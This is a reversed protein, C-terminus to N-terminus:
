EIQPVEIKVSKGSETTISVQINIQRPDDLSQVLRVEDITEIVEDSNPNDQNIVNYHTLADVISTQISSFKESDLKSGISTNVDTGYDQDESNSGKPTLIIKFVGEALKTTGELEILQNLGDIQIDGEFAEWTYTSAGVSKVIESPLRPRDIRKLVGIDIPM